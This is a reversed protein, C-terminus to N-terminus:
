DQNVKLKVRTYSQIQIADSDLVKVTQGNTGDVQLRVGAFLPTELFTQMQAEDLDVTIESVAEQQVYGSGDVTGGDARVPGIQLIPNDFLEAESNAFMFEVSAGLPLHNKIKVFFSGNALNEVVDERVDQEIELETPDSEVIQTPFSLALPARLKVTGSVYDDRTVTGTWSEDGLKVQGFVRLYKPVISIFDSISSNVDNLVITTTSPVGSESAPQIVENIFLDSRAGSENEGEVRLDTRAPFYIGNNINLEMQATEFFVNDLDAPIDFDIESQEIDITTESLKGSLSSFRVSEMSFQALYIDTSRILVMEAGTSITRATWLVRIPQQGFDAMQPRLSFGSLDVTHPSPFDRDIFFSDVLATGSPSVFDPLSCVLWTDLPLNGAVAIDLIGNELIAETVVVSDSITVQDSNSVTQRPIRALAENATLEGIEAEMEFTSQADIVVPQGNSGPSDGSIKLSLRNPVRQGQLDFTFTQTQGPVVQSNANDSAILVDADTDWIELVLPPGLPVALNNTVNLDVAGNEIVVYSFSEYDQLPRKPTEFSFPPVVITEGDRNSAEPYIEQLEIYTFESGPAEITFTGMEISMDEQQDELTLQDGVYYQDLDAEVEFNVNGTSDVFLTTEDEAIEAMTYVKNILPITMDVDWSPASPKELSCSMLNALFLLLSICKAISSFRTM